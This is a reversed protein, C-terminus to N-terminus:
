SHAVLLALLLTSAWRSIDVTGQMEGARVRTTEVLTLDPAEDNVVKTSFVPEGDADVCVTWRHGKGADTGIWIRAHAKSM